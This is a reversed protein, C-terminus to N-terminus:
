KSIHFYAMFPIVSIYLVKIIVILLSSSYSVNLIGVTQLELYSLTKSNYFLPIILLLIISM